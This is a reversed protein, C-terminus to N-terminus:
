NNNILLINNTPDQSGNLPLDANTRPIAFFIISQLLFNRITLGNAVHM